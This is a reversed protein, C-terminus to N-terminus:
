NRLHSDAARPAREKQLSAKERPHESPGLHALGNSHSSGKRSRPQTPLRSASGAIHAFASSLWMQWKRAGKQEDCPEKPVIKCSKVENSRMM